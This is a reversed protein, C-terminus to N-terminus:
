IALPEFGAPSEFALEIVLANAYITMYAEFCLKVGEQFSGMCRVATQPLQPLIACPVAGPFVHPM